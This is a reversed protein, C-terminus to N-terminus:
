SGIEEGRLYVQIRGSGDEIHAFSSKGMIRVTRLRGVLALVEDEALDGAEFLHRAQAITHSRQCRSPYPDIGEARLRALKERRVREQESLNENM